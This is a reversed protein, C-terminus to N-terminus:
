FGLEVEDASAQFAADQGLRPATLELHRERNAEGIVKGVTDHEVGVGPGLLRQAM